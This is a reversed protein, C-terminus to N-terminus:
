SRLLVLDVNSRLLTTATGVAAAGVGCVSNSSNPKYNSVNHTTKELEALASCRADLLNAIHRSSYESTDFNTGSTSFNRATTLM